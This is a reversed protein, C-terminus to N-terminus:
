GATPQTQPPVNIRVVRQATFRTQTLADLFTVKVTVNPHRPVRNQWPLILVYNYQLLVSSWAQRTQELDLHWHGLLPHQPDDLDFAEVDFTGASKFKDGTQDLLTIYLALGEDGPKNPDIDAGGTLRGFEIGNTVFLQSLRTTPLTPLIGTRDRLGQIVRQDAATQQRLRQVEVQQQQIQKRLEINAQNPSGCGSVFLAACGLGLSLLPSRHNM